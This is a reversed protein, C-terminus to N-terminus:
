KPVNIAEPLTYYGMAFEIFGTVAELYAWVFVVRQVPSLHVTIHEIDEGRNINIATNFLGNAVIVSNVFPTMKKNELDDLLDGVDMFANTNNETIQEKNM